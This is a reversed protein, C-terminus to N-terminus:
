SQVSLTFSLSRLIRRFFSIYSVEWLGLFRVSGLPESMFLTTKSEACLTQSDNTSNFLNHKLIKLCIEEETQAERARPVWMVNQTGIEYQMYERIHINLGCAYLAHISFFIVRGKKGIIMITMLVYKDSCLGKFYM